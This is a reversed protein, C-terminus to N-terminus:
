RLSAMIEIQDLADFVDGLTECPLIETAHRCDVKNLEWRPLPDYKLAAQKRTEPSAEGLEYGLREARDALKRFSFANKKM